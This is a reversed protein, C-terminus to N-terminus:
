ERPSWRQARMWKSQCSSPETAIDMTVVFTIPLYTGLFCYSDLKLFIHIAYITRPKVPFSVDARSTWKWRVAREFLVVLSHELRKCNHDVYISLPISSNYRNATTCYTLVSCACFFCGDEVGRHTWGCYLENSSFWKFRFVIFVWWTVLLCTTTWEFVSISYLWLKNCTM